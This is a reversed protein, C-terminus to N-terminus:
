LLLRLSMFHVTMVQIDHTQVGTPDFNPHTTSRDLDYKIWLFDVTHHVVQFPLELTTVDQSSSTKWQKFDTDKKTMWPFSFQQLFQDFIPLVKGM